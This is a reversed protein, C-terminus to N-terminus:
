TLSKTASRAVKGANSVSITIISCHREPPKTVGTMLLLRAARVDVDACRDMRGVVGEASRVEVLESLVPDSADGPVIGVPCAERLDHFGRVAVAPDGGCLGERVSVRHVM